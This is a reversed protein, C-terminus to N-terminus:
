GHAPDGQVVADSYGHLEGNSHTQLLRLPWTNPVTRLQTGRRELLM